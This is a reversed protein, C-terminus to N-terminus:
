DDLTIARVAGLYAQVPQPVAIAPLRKALDNAADILLKQVDAVTPLVRGGGRATATVVIATHTLKTSMERLRAELSPGAPRPTTLPIAHAGAFPSPKGAMSHTTTTAVPIPNLEVDLLYKRLHKCSKPTSKSFIWGKCTCYIVGDGGRRIEHPNGGDSAAVVGLVEYSKAM